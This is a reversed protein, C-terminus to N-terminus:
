AAAWAEAKEQFAYVDGETIEALEELSYINGPVIEDDSRGVATVLVHYEGDIIRWVGRVYTSYGHHGVYKKKFM